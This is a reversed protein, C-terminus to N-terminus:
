VISYRTWRREGQKRLVGEAVMALLERQITKGGVGKIGNAVDNVGVEGKERITKLILSRRDARDESPVSHTGVATRIPKIFSMSQGKDHGKHIAPATETFFDRTLYTAIESRDVMEESITKFLLTFERKLLTTNMESVQKSYHGVDYLTTIEAILALARLAASRREGISVAPAVLLSNSVASLLDLTKSFLTGSLTSNDKILGAVLNTAIVLKETKKYIFASQGSYSFPVNLDLSNQVARDCSSKM